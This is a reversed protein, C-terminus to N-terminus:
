IKNNLIDETINEKLKNYIYYINHLCHSLYRIIGEADHNPQVIKDNLYINYKQTEKNFFVRYLNNEDLEYESILEEEM